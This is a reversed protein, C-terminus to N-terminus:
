RALGGPVANRLTLYFRNGIGVRPRDIRLPEYGALAAMETLTYPTFRYLARPVRHRTPRELVRPVLGAIDSASLVVMGGPPLLRRVTALETLPDPMCELIQFMTVIDFSQEAYGADRWDGCHVTLGFHEQAFRAAAPAHDTGSVDFGAARARDLFIGSSCGIHLLRAGSGPTM